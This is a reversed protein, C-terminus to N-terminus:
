RQHNSLISRREEPELHRTLRKIEVRPHYFNVLLCLPLQTAALYNLCQATHIDELLKVTKLEVLVEREVLLDAVYDGILVGSYYVPIPYQQAVELGAKRIEIALANEYLKELFGCGLTNSVKYCCGIIKSTIDNHHNSETKDSNM